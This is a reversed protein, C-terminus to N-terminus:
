KVKLLTLDLDMFCETSFKRNQPLGPVPHGHVLTTSFILLSFSLLCVIQISIMKTLVNLVSIHFIIKKNVIRRSKKRVCFITKQKYLLCALSIVIINKLFSLSLDSRNQLKKICTVSFSNVVFILGRGRSHHYFVM